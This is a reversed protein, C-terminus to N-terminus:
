HFIGEYKIIRSPSGFRDIIDEKKAPIRMPAAGNLSLYVKTQLANNICLEVKRNDELSVSIYGGEWWLFWHENERNFGSVSLFKEIEKFEKFNDFVFKRGGIELELPHKNESSLEIKAWKFNGDGDLYSIFDASLDSYQYIVTHSKICGGFVFLGALCVVGFPLNSWM